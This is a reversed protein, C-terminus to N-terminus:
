NLISTTRQHFGFNIWLQKRLSIFNDAFCLQNNCAMADLAALYDSHAKFLKISCLHSINKPGYLQVYFLFLLTENQWFTSLSWYLCKGFFVSEKQATTTAWNTFHDSEVGSTRPEFGTIPLQSKNLYDNDVTTFLRFYLFLGFHGM